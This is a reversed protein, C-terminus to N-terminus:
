LINKLLILLDKTVLENLKIDYNTEIKKILEDPNKNNAFESLLVDNKSKFSFELKVTNEKILNFLFGQLINLLEEDKIKNRMNEVLTDKNENLYENLGNTFAEPLNLNFIANVNTLYINDEIKISKDEFSAIQQTIDYKYANALNKNIKFSTDTKLYADALMVAYKMNTQILEDKKSYDLFYELNIDKSLSTILFSLKDNFLAIYFALLQQLQTDIKINNISAKLYRKEKAFYSLVDFYSGSDKGYILNNEVVVSGITAIAVNDILLKVNESKCSVLNNNLNCNFNLGDLLVNRGQNFLAIQKVQKNLGLEFQKAQEQTIKDDNSCSLFTFLLMSCCLIKKM